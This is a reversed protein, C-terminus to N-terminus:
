DGRPGFSHFVLQDGHPGDDSQEAVEAGAVVIGADHFADDKANTLLRRKDVDRVFQRRM